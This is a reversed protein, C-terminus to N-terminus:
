DEYITCPIDLIDTLQKEVLKNNPNNLIDKITTVTLYTTKYIDFDYCEEENWDSMKFGLYLFYELMDKLSLEAKHYITMKIEVIEHDIEYYYGHISAEKLLEPIIVEKKLTTLKNKM